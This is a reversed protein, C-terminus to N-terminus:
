WRAQNTREASQYEANSAAVASGIQILLRQMDSIASTWESKAHHYAESASGTWDSRLPALESDLQDLRSNLHDASAQVDGAAADLAGFQVKFHGSTM